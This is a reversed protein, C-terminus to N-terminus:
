NYGIIHRVLMISIVSRTAMTQGHNTEEEMYVPQTTGSTLPSPAMKQWALEPPSPLTHDALSFNKLICSPISGPGRFSRCHSENM